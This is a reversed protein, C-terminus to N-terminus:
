NCLVKNGKAARGGGRFEEIYTRARKLRSFSLSLPLPPFNQVFRDAHSPGNM